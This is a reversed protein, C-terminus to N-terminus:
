NGRGKSILGDGPRQPATGPDPPVDLGFELRLPAIESHYLDVLQSIALEHKGLAVSQVVIAMVKNKLAGIEAARRGNAARQLEPIHHHIISAAMGIARDEPRLPPQLVAGIADLQNQILTWEVPDKRTWAEKARAKLQNIAPRVEDLKEHKSEIARTVIGTLRESFEDFTPKLQVEEESSPLHTIKSEMAVLLEQIKNRKPEPEGLEAEIQDELMELEFRLAEGAERVPCDQIALRAKEELEGIRKTVYERTVHSVDVPKIEFQIKVDRKIEPASASAHISYDDRIDVEVIVKSGVRLDKPIDNIVLRDVEHDGELIPAIIKGSQDGTAFEHSIRHPLPTNEPFLMQPGELTRVAIPKTVVSGPSSLVPTVTSSHVITIEQEIVAKQDADEVSIMLSNSCDPELPVRDFTFRDTGDLSVYSENRGQVLYVTYGDLKRNFVGAIRVDDQDTQRDYRLELELGTQSVAQDAYLDAAKLAAGLAVILDPNVLKPLRGFEQEVMRRVLPMRSMGGVMIVEHISALPIKKDKRELTARSAKITRDVLDKACAELEARTVVLDLDVIKGEQDEFLEQRVLSYEDHQSLEKKALEAYFKLRQFRSYDEPKELDLDLKYGAESLRNALHRAFRADVDDGGLHPDGGFSLVTLGGYADKELVTADFTGGGLDYVFVRLTEATNELSYALAAAVPELLTTVRRFGAAKAAEDTQQRQVHNFYAPVTVVARDVKEGTDEEALERLYSLIMASIEVATRESGGLLVTETSGMKRKITIVPGPQEGMRNKAAVGVTRKGKSGEYVVSPFTQNGQKDRIVRNGKEDVVVICSNTTGLDIGCIRM